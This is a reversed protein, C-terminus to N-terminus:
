TSQGSKSSQKPSVSMNGEEEHDSNPASPFTSQLGGSFGISVSSSLLGESLLWLTEFDLSDIVEPPSLGEHVVMVTLTPLPLLGALEAAGVEVVALGLCCWDCPLSCGLLGDWGCCADEDDDGEALSQFDCCGWVVSEVVVGVVFAVEETAMDGESAAVQEEEM